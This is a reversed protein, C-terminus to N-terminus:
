FMRNETASKVGVVVNGLSGSVGTIGPKPAWIPRMGSELAIKSPLLEQQFRGSQYGDEPVM